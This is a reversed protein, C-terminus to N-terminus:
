NSLVNAVVHRQIQEIWDELTITAEMLPSWFPCVGILFFPFLDTRYSTLSWTGWNRVAIHWEGTDQACVIMWHRHDVGPFGYGTYQVPLTEVSLQQLNM